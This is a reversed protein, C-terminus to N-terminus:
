IRAASAEASRRSHQVMRICYEERFTIATKAHLMAARPASSHPGKGTADKGDTCCQNSEQGVSPAPLSDAM